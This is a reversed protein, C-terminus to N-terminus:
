CDGITEVQLACAVLVVRCLSKNTCTYLQAQGKGLCLSSCAHAARVKYVGHKTCLSDYKTFLEHLMLMVQVTYALMLSCDHACSAMCPSCTLHQTTLQVACVCCLWM